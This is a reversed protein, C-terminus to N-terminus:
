LSKGATTQISRLSRAILQVDALNSNFEELPAYFYLRQFHGSGTSDNPAVLQYVSLPRGDASAPVSEITEIGKRGDPLDVVCASVLEGAFPWIRQLTVLAEDRSVAGSLMTAMDFAEVVKSNVPHVTRMWTLHMSDIGPVVFRVHSGDVPAEEPKWSEKLLISWGLSSSYIMLISKGGAM